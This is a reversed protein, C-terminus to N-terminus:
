VAFPLTYAAGYWQIDSVPGGLEAHIAPAAVTMITADLLNMAEAVLLVALASWRSSQTNQMRDLRRPRAEATGRLLGLSGSEEMLRRSILFGDMSSSISRPRTCARCM